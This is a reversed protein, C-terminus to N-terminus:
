NKRLPKGWLWAMLMLGFTSYMAMDLWTDSADKDDKPKNSTGYIKNQREYKDDLRTLLGQFLRKTINKKGYKKQKYRVTERAFCQTIFFADEFHQPEGYAATFRKVYDTFEMKELEEPKCLNPFLAHARTYIDEAPPSKYTGGVSTPWKDDFAHHQASGHASRQARGEDSM